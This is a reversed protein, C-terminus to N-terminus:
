LYEYPQTYVFLSRLDMNLVFCGTTYQQQQITKNTKKKNKHKNLQFGWFSLFFLVDYESTLLVNVVATQNPKTKQTTSFGEHKM